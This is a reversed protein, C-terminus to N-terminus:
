RLKELVMLLMLVGLVVVMVALVEAAQTIIHEAAAEAVVTFVVVQSQLHVVLEELV